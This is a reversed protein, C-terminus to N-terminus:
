ATNGFTNWIIIKIMMFVVSLPAIRSMNEHHHQTGPWTTCLALNDRDAVRVWPDCPVGAGDDDDNDDDNVGDDGAGDDDHSDDDDVGDDDCLVRKCDSYKSNEYYGRKSGWLQREEFIIVDHCIDNEDEDKYSSDGLLKNPPNFMM